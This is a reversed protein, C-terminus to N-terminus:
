NKAQCLDRASEEYPFTQIYKHEVYFINSNNEDDHLSWHESVKDATVNAKQSTASQMSVQDPVPSSGQTYYLLSQLDESFLVGRDINGSHEFLINIDGGIFYGQKRGKRTKMVASM